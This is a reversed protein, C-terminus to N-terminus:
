MKRKEGETPSFRSFPLFFSFLKEFLSILDLDDSEYQQGQQNETMFVPM